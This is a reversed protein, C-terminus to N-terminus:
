EKKLHLKRNERCAQDFKIGLHRWVRDRQADDGWVYGEPVYRWQFLMTWLDDRDDLYVVGQDYHIWSVGRKRIIKLEAARVPKLGHATEFSEYTSAAVGTDLHLDQTTAIFEPSMWPACGCLTLCLLVIAIRM